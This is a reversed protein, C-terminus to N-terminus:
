SIDASTYSTLKVTSGSAGLTTIKEYGLSNHLQTLDVVRYTNGSQVVKVVTGIVVDATTLEYMDDLTEVKIFQIMQGLVEKLKIGNDMDFYVEDTTNIPLMAVHQGDTDKVRLIGTMTKAM